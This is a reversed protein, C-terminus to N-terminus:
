CINPRDENKQQPAILPLVLEFCAGQGLTSEVKITGGLTKSIVNEVITMGLGTGGQGIKTSFFPQFLKAMAEESIGVGNDCVRIVVAQEAPEAIIKLLGQESKEFAHLYANNILNIIVQGLAGPYSDLQIGTPIELTIQHPYRKLSPALTSVVEHLSESLDFSRRQESAQDTAVQKFNKLLEAAREVNRQLLECSSRLTELFQTLESRKLQGSSLQTLLAQTQEALTNTLLVSNGLPTGLEHSVSAILTSLTAKAESQVLEEQSHRLHETTIALEQTREEVRQEMFRENEALKNMAMRLALHTHVRARVVNPNFPKLIYDVAGLEIGKAEEDPTRHATIFIVPIDCTNPDAKLQRCAEYGDMEPMSVDMLMLDPQRQRCLDIAEKGNKGIFIDYEGKFLDALLHLNIPEDDVILLRARPFDKAFSPHKKNLMIPM